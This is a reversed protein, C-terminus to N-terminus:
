VKICSWTFGDSKAHSTNFTIAHIANDIMAIRSDLTAKGPLDCQAVTRGDLLDICLLQANKENNLIYCLNDAQVICRTGGTKISALPVGSHIDLVYFYGGHGGTGFFLRDNWRLVDTYLYARGTFEWIISNDKKCIYGSNGKHLITFEGLYQPAEEYYKSPRMHQNYLAQCETPISFSLEENKLDFGCKDSFLLLSTDSTEVIDWRHPLTLQEIRECSCLFNVDPSVNTSSLLNSRNLFFFTVNDEQKYFVGYCEPAWFDKIRVQKNWLLHM